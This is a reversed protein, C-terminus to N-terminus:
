ACIKAWLCLYAHFLVKNKLNLFQIETVCDERREGSGKRRSWRLVQPITDYWYTLTVDPRWPRRDTNASVLIQALPCHPVLFGTGIELALPRSPTWTWSHKITWVQRFWREPPGLPAEAGRHIAPNHNTQQTPQRNVASHGNTEEWGQERQTLKIGHRLRVPEWLSSPLTQLCRRQWRAVEVFRCVANGGVKQIRGDDGRGRQLRSHLVPCLAGGPGM